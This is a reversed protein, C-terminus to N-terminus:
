CSMRYLFCIPFAAPRAKAGRDQWRKVQSQPRSPLYGLEGEVKNRPVQPGDHLWEASDSGAKRTGPEASPATVCSLGWLEPEPVQAALAQVCTYIWPVDRGRSQSHSEWPSPSAASM